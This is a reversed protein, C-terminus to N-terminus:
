TFFVEEGLAKVKDTNLTSPGTIPQELGLERAQVIANEMRQGAFYFVDVDRMKTLQTRFDNDSLEYPEAIVSGGLEEFRNTFSNKFGIGNDLNLYIIGVTRANLENYAYEAMLTGHAYDSERNRFIYDGADTIANSTSVTSFLIIGQEEALPAVALVSSSCTPGIIIKVNQTQVLKNFAAVAKQPNCEDDEFIIKLGEEQAALDVGNHVWEGVYATKGSLPQIAGIKTEQTTCGIILVILLILFLKKMIIGGLFNIPTLLNYLKHITSKTM